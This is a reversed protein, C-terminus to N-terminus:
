YLRIDRVFDEFNNEEDKWQGLLEGLKMKGDLYDRVRDDGTLSELRSVDAYENFSIKDSHIELVGRLFYLMQPIFDTEKAIPFFEIGFCVQDKYKSSFPVFARKRFKFDEFVRDSLWKNMKGMDMWPAGYMQFPRPSGRGESLNTAEVFCGGSYCVNACYTPVAPSPVNWFLGTEPFIMDKNYNDMKIIEIDCNINYEKKFYLALEGPTLGYRIPLKYDGVFSAYKEDMRSGKVASGLPNPRDLVVIPIGSKQATEMCYVLTYIFTYYRLGVDQIDYVLLDLGKFDDVEPRKKKGYLSKVPINYEPHISDGVAQGDAVGYIGHEPSFIEVVDFGNENFIAINERLNSDVGSYNTILAIKKGKFLDTRESIKDIGMKIKM